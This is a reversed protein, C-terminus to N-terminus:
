EEFIVKIEDKGLKALFGRVEDVGSGVHELLHADSGISFLRGGKNFYAEVLSLRPMTDNYAKVLNSTNIELFLNNSVIEDLVAEREEMLNTARCGNLYKQIMDYHGIVQFLGSKASNTVERLYVKYVWKLGKRALLDQGILQHDLYHVSGIRYDFQMKKLLHRIEDEYATQYDVEIGKRLTLRDGFTERAHAITATYAEYNFFGYGEDGPELDLHDTIGVEDLGVALARECIQSITAHGDVSFLSHIHYDVSRDKGDM